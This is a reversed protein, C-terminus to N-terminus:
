FSPFREFTDFIASFNRRTETHDRVTPNNIAAIFLSLHRHIDERKQGVSEAFIREARAVLTQNAAQDRPALKIEQLALFRTEIEEPSLGSQGAFFQRIVEGTNELTIEVELAGSIDYTFRVKAPDNCSSNPAPCASRAWNSM